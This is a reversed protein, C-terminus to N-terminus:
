FARSGRNPTSGGANLQLHEMPKGFLVRTGAPEFGLKRYLRKAKANDQEVLLGLTEGRKKVYEDILVQLLQSGIGKGHHNPDVGITDIYYEGSGTEDEPAFSSHFRSNIYELVPQRLEDLKGGDYINVAGVVEKDAQAVWCNQYSYQNAEKEAFYRMFAKAAEYDKRGIFQYVIGEMALLLYTAIAEADARTAKRIIMPEKNPDM